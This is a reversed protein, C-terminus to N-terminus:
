HQGFGLEVVSEVVPVDVLKGWCDLMELGEAMQLNGPWMNLCTTPAAMM